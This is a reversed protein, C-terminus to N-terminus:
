SEWVALTDAILNDSPSMTTIREVLRSLMRSYLVLGIAELNGHQRSGILSGAGRIELDRLAISWGSGLKETDAMTELRAQAAKPLPTPRESNTNGILLLAYAQQNRRGVRGRLQYLDALGFDEAREVIMTNAAPNDLGHEVIATSILIDIEGNFFSHLIPTLQEAAMQGHATAYRLHTKPDAKKDRTLILAGHLATRLRSVVGHLTRVRNHVYYMQGGREKERLIAAAVQEYSYAAVTTDVGKREGPATRITSM